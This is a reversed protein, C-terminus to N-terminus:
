LEIISDLEWFSAVLPGSLYWPGEQYVLHVDRVYVPPCKALFMWSASWLANILTLLKEHSPGGASCQCLRITGACDVLIAETNGGPTTSTAGTTEVRFDRDNKNERLGLQRGLVDHM